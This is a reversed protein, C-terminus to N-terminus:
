TLRGMPYKRTNIKALIIHAKWYEPALIAVLFSPGIVTVSKGIAIAVTRKLM